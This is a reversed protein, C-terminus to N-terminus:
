LGFSVSQDLLVHSKKGRHVGLFLYTENEEDDVPGEEDEVDTM